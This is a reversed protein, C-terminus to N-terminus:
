ELPTTPTADAVLVLADYADAPVTSVTYLPPVWAMWDAFQDGASGMPVPERLVAANVPSAADIELYGQGTGAFIGRLPTPNELEFERREEGDGSRFRSRVFDTGIVRYAEGWRQHALTGLDAHAFAASTKEVHGDHAFLLTQLRGEDAGEAVVRELNAFMMTARTEAYGMGEQQLDRGQQLTRAAALATRGDHDSPNRREIAAVLRDIAASNARYDEATGREDTLTALAGALEDAGAADARALWGLALQKNADVRQVDIGVLRTRAAPALAQNRDRLSRLLDAMQETKNLRYGFAAAAEEATGPGGQVFRDVLSVAGFDEELAITRFQPLKRALETRLQQFEANGHTAEGLALVTADALEPGIAADAFEVAQPEGLPRTTWARHGIGAGIGIVVVAVLIWLVRRGARIRAAM